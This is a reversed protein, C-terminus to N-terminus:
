PRNCQCNATTHSTHPKGGVQPTFPGVPDETPTEVRIFPEAPVAVVADTTITRIAGAVTVTAQEEEARIFPTAQLDAETTRIAARISLEEQDVTTTPTM